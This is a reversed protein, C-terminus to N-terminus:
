GEVVGHERWMTHSPTWSETDVGELSLRELAFKWPEVARSQAARGALLATALRNTVWLRWSEREQWDLVQEERPPDVGWSLLGDGNLDATFPVGQAPCGALRSRLRDAADQIEEFRRFYVVLKDPRLLGYIDKGVKFRAVPMASAVDLTARFAEPLAECRPSVYLKYMTRPSDQEPVPRRARWMLWGDMPAALSVRSWNRDLDGHCAGGTEIGLFQAVAEVTPLRRRWEPTAPWRNYFYL